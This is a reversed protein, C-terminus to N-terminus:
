VWMPKKGSLFRVGDLLFAPILQFLLLSVLHWNFITTCTIKPYWVIKKYPAYKLLYKRSIEISKQWTMPNEDADTCNYFLVEDTEKLTSRKWASAITANIVFDVPSCRVRIGPPSYMNRIFGTMAGCILGMTSQLGEVFGSCPEKVAGWVLSPRIIVIPLIECYSCVVDEALAKSLTYTNHHKTVEFRSSCRFSIM